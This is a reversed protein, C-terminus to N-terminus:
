SRERVTNEVIGALVALSLRRTTGDDSGENRM